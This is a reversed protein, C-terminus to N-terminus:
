RNADHDHFLFDIVLRLARTIQAVDGELTLTREGAAGEDRKSLEAQVCVSKIEDFHAGKKGILQGTKDDPVVVSVENFSKSYNQVVQMLILQQAADMAANSSSIITVMRAFKLGPHPYFPEDAGSVKITTHAQWQLRRITSGKPGIVSGVYDDHLLLILENRAEPLRPSQPSRSKSM